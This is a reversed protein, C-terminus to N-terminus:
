RTQREGAPAYRRDTHLPQNDQLLVQFEGSSILLILIVKLLESPTIAAVERNPTSLLVAKSSGFSLRFGGCPALVAAVASKLRIFNAASLECLM